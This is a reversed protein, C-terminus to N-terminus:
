LSSSLCHLDLYPPEYHAVEDLDASKAFEAIADRTSLTNLSEFSTSENCTSVNCFLTLYPFFFFYCKWFEIFFLILPSAKQM